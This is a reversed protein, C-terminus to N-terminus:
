RKLACLRAAGELELLRAKREVGGAYGTLRGGAGVVRHCPVILSIPNHAVAAGVARAGASLGLEAAIEGYTRTQGYPIGLLVRWVRRRFESGRLALPPVFGPARGSFYIDLWRRAAAFVPLDREDHESALGAAFHKQGCFWLGVLAAGDGALMIGGLPSEYRSVSDM